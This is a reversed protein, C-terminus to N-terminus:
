HEDTCPLPLPPSNSVNLVMAANVVGRLQRHQTITQIATKVDNSDGVDGQLVIVEVGRAEITSILHAAAPRKAGSRALFALHRAGRDVM